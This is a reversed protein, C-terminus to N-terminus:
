FSSTNGYFEKMLESEFENSFFPFMQNRRVVRM